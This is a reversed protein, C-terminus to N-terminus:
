EKSRSQMQHHNRRKANQGSIGVPYTVITGFTGGVYAFSLFVPKESTPVWRFTVLWDPCPRFTKRFIFLTAIDTVGGRGRVQVGSPQSGPVIGGGPRGSIIKLNPIIMQNSIIMM